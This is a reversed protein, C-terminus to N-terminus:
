RDRDPRSACTCRGGPSARRAGRRTRPRSRQRRTRRGRCWRASPRSGPLRPSGRRRPRRSTRPRSRGTAPAIRGTQAMRIHQGAQTRHSRERVAARRRSIGSRARTCRHDASGRRRGWQQDSAAATGQIVPRRAAGGDIGEHRVRTLVPDISRVGTRRSRRRNIPAGRLRWAAPRAPPRDAADGVVDADPTTARRRTGLVGRSM